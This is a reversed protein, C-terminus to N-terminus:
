IKHSEILKKNGSKKFQVNISSQGDSLLIKNTVIGYDDWIEHYLVDGVSFSERPAYVKSNKTDINELILKNPIVIKNLDIVQTQKCVKCKAWRRTEGEIKSYEGKIDFKKMSGCVNCFANVNKVKVM